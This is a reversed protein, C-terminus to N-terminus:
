FVMRALTFLQRFNTNPIAIDARCEYTEGANFSVEKQWTLSGLPPFTGTNGFPTMSQWMVGRTINVWFIDVRATIQRNAENKIWAEMLKPQGARLMEVDGVFNALTTIFRSISGDLCSGPAASDTKWVKGIMYVEDGYGSILIDEFPIQVEGLQGPELVISPLPVPTIDKYNFGSAVGIDCGTGVTNGALTLGIFFKAPINGTNQVKM